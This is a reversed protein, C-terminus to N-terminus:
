TRVTEPSLVIQGVCALDEAATRFDSEAAERCCFQRVGVSYRGTNMGLWTDVPTVSGQQRNWYVTRTIQVPGNITLYQISRSGKNEWTQGPAPAPPPFLRRM